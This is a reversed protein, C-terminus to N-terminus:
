RCPSLGALPGTVPVVVTTIVPVLKMGVEPVCTATLKPLLVTTPWTSEAVLTVQTAGAPAAAPGTSTRTVARPPWLATLAPSLYM